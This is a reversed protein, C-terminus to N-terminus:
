IWGKLSALIAFSAIMGIASGLLIADVQGYENKFLSKLNRYATKTITVHRHRQMTESDIRKLTNGEFETDKRYPM